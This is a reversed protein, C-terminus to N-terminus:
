YRLETLEKISYENANVDWEYFTSDIGKHIVGGPVCLVFNNIKTKGPANPNWYSLEWDLGANWSSNHPQNYQGDLHIPFLSKLDKVRMFMHGARLSRKECLNGYKTKRWGLESHEKSMYGTVFFIDQNEILINCYTSIPELFINDQDTFQIYDYEDINKDELMQLLAGRQGMNFDSVYLTYNDDINKNIENIVINKIDTDTNDVIYVDNIYGDEKINKLSNIVNGIHNPRNFSTLLTLIKVEKDLKPLIKNEFSVGIKEWSYNNIVFDSNEKLEQPNANTDYDNFLSLMHYKLDNNNPEGWEGLMWPHNQVPTLTTRVEHYRGKILETAGPESTSIIPLGCAMAELLTMGFTDARSPYIYVHCQGYLEIVREHGENSVHWFINKYKDTYNKIDEGNYFVMDTNSKIHLEVDLNTGFLDIFVSLLNFIGKRDSCEGVYLFKFKDSKIRSKYKFIQPDIGHPLVFIPKVVGLNIMREKSKISPTLLFDAQNSLVTFNPHGGTTDVGSYIVKTKFNDLEKIMDPYSFMIGLNNNTEKNLWNLIKANKTETKGIISKCSVNTTKLNELLKQSLIGMSSYDDYKALWTLNPKKKVTSINTTKGKTISEILVDIDMDHTCEFIHAYKVIYDDFRIKEFNDGSNNVVLFIDKDNLQKIIEYYELNKLLTIYTGARFKNLKEFNWDSEKKTKENDLQMFTVGQVHNIPFDVVKNETAWGDLNVCYGIDYGNRLVRESIEGDDHYGMGFGENLLGIKNLISKKIIFCCGLIFGGDLLVPGILGNKENRCLPLLREEWNSFLNADSNLCLILENKCRKYGENTAKVFGIPKENIFVRVIPNLKSFNILKQNGEDTTGNSYLVVDDIHKSTSLTLNINEIALDVNNYIPVLLSLNDTKVSSFKTLGIGGFGGKNHSYDYLQPVCIRDLKNTYIFEKFEYQKKQEEWFTSVYCNHERHFQSDIVDHYGVIANDALFQKYIKFDGKVGEYTHDGDIFLFDIKKDNLIESVRNVLYPHKSDGNIAFFEKKVLNAQELIDSIVYTREEFGQGGHIGIPYDISIVTKVSPIEFWRALTGGNATGIEVVVEPNHKSVALQLNEIELPIQMARDKRLKVWPKLQLRNFTNKFFLEHRYFEVPFEDSIQEHKIFTIDPRNLVDLSNYMKYKIKELNTIEPINYEQHAYSNIKNQVNNPTDFFSFHWGGNEIHECNFVYDRVQSLNDMKNITERNLAATGHWTLDLETIPSYYFTKLNFSIADFGMNKVKEWAISFKNKNPIEDLDGHLILTEDDSLELIKTMLIDRQGKELEWFGNKTLDNPNLKLDFQTLDPSYKIYIIKDNYQNFMEKNEFYFLKKQKGSHMIDGESFIFYDVSDYLYDLRLKLMELEGGFVFSDIVKYNKM